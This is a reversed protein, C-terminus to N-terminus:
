MSLRVSLTRQCIYVGEREDKGKELTNGVENEESSMAIDENFLM